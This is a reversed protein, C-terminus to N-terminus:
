CKLKKKLNETANENKNSVNKTQEKKQKKGSFLNFTTGKPTSSFTNKGIESFNLFNVKTKIPLHSALFLVMSIILDKLSLKSFLSLTSSKNNTSLGNSM